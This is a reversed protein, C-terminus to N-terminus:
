IELRTCYRNKKKPVDDLMKQYNIRDDKTGSGIDVYKKVIEFGRAEAYQTLDLLQMDVNQEKTSVRAYIIVRKKM